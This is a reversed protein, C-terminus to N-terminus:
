SLRVPDGAEPTLLLVGSLFVFSSFSFSFRCAASFVGVSSFRLVRSLEALRFSALRSLLRRFSSSLSDLSLQLLGALGALEVEEAQEDAVLRSSLRLRVDVGVGVRWKSLAFLTLVAVVLGEGDGVKSM